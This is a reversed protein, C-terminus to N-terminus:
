RVLSGRWRWLRPGCPLEVDLADLDVDCVSDLLASLRGWAMVRSRSRRRATSELRIVPAAVDPSSTTESSPTERSTTPTRSLPNSTLTKPRPGSM